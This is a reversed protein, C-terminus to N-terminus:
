DKQVLNEFLGLVAPEESETFHGAHDVVSATTVLKNFERLNEELAGYPDDRSILLTSKPLVVRVKELNIPTEIWPKAIEEEAEGELNELNFWGAVFLAGGVPEHVTELYRLITQCGISHGIFYTSGDPSGVVNAIESVWEGIIPTDTDPMAPVLVEYGLTELKGKLWPYWDDSPNGSWRHVIIVRPFVM